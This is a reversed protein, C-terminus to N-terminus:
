EAGKTKKKPVVELVNSEIAVYRKASERLTEIERSLSAVEDKLMANDELLSIIVKNLRTYSAVYVNDKQYGPVRSNIERLWVDIQSRSPIPYVM